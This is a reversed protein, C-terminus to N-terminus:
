SRQEEDVVHKLIFYRPFGVQEDQLEGHISVLEWEEAGHNNLTSIIDPGVGEHSITPKYAKRIHHDYNCYRWRAGQVLTSFIFNRAMGDQGNEVRTSEGTAGILEARDDNGLHDLVEVLTPKPAHAIGNASHTLVTREQHDYTLVPRPFTISQAPRRFVHYRSEPDNDDTTTESNFIHEWREEALCGLTDGISFQVDLKWIEPKYVTRDQHDYVCYEWQMTMPEPKKFIFYQAMGDEIRNSSGTVSLLEWGEDGFSKLTYALGDNSVLNPGTHYEDGTQHDYYGYQWPPM